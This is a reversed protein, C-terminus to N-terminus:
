AHLLLRCSAPRSPEICMASPLAQRFLVAICWASMVGGVARFHTWLGACALLEGHSQGGSLLVEETRAAFHNRPLSLEREADAAQQAQRCRRPLVCDESMCASHLLSAGWMSRTSPAESSQRRPAAAPAACSSACCSHATTMPHSCAPLAAALIPETHCKAQAAYQRAGFSYQMISEILGSHLSGAERAASAGKNTQFLLKYVNCM